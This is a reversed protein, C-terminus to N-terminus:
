ASRQLSHIIASFYRQSDELKRCEYDHFAARVVVPVDAIVRSAIRYGQAPAWADCFTMFAPAVAVFEDVLFEWEYGQMRKLSAIEARRFVQAVTRSDNGPGAPINWTAVYVGKTGDGSEFYTEESGEQAPQEQWDAPLRIQWTPTRILTHSAM